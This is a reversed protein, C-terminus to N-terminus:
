LSYRIPMTPPVPQRLTPRRVPEQAFRGAICHHSARRGLPTVMASGKLQSLAARQSSADRVAV